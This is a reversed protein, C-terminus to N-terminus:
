GPVSKSTKQLGAENVKSGSHLQLQGQVVSEHAKVKWISINSTHAVVCAEASAADEEEKLGSKGKETEFETKYIM